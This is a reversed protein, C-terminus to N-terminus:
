ILFKLRELLGGFSGGEEMAVDRISACSYAHFCFEHLKRSFVVFWVVAKSRAIFRNIVAFM